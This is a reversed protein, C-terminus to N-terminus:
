SRLSPGSLNNLLLGCFLESIDHKSLSFLVALSGFLPHNYRVKNRWNWSSLSAAAKLVLIANRPISRLRGNSTRKLLQFSNMGDIFTLFQLRWKSSKMSLIAKRIYHDCRESYGQWYAQIARNYYMTELVNADETDTPVDIAYPTSSSPGGKDILASITERNISLYVKITENNYTNALKLYYDVKELLTPLRDGASVATWIHITSNLFAIGTEGLSMGADFGQRLMDACSQLPETYPAIFGYYLLYLDPLQESTHYRKMSCSMAAKGIRSAGDIDTEVIKGTCLVMAYLVFGIISHKCLGSDMTLQAMRCAIFPVMERKGFFSAKALINYFKMSISLREDMEKMQLLGSESIDKLMKSSAKVTKVIQWGKLSKPIEEGLQTLTEECLIYADM